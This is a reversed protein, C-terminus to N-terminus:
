KHATIFQLRLRETVRATPITGVGSRENNYVLTQTMVTPIAPIWLVPIRHEYSPLEVNCLKNGAKANGDM